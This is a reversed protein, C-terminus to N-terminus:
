RQQEYNSWHTVSSCIEYSHSFTITRAMSATITGDGLMTIPHSTSAHQIIPQSSKRLATGHSHWEACEYLSQEISFCTVSRKGRINALTAWLELCSSGVYRRWQHHTCQRSSLGEFKCKGQHICWQMHYQGPYQVQL